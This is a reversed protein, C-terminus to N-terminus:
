VVRANCGLVTQLEERQRGAVSCGFTVANNNYAHFGVLLAHAQLKVEPSIYIASLFLGSYM